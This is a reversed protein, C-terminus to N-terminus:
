RVMRGISGPVMAVVPGPVNGDADNNAYGALAVVALGKAFGGNRGLAVAAVGNGDRM